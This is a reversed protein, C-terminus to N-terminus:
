PQGPQSFEPDVNSALSQEIVEAAFSPENSALVLADFEHKKSSDSSGSAASDSGGVRTAATELSWGGHYRAALVEVGTQVRVDSRSLLTSAVGELGGCLGTSALLRQESSGELFGCFNMAAAKMEQLREDESMEEGDAAKEDAQRPKQIRFMGTAMAHERGLVAGSKGIIGFRGSWEQLLDAMVPSQALMVFRPDSATVFHAGIDCVGLIAGAGSADRGSALVKRSTARGGLTCSKEFLSVQLGSRALLSACVSGSIGGGVVAVRRCAAVAM